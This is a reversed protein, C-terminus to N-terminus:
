THRRLQQMASLPAAQGGRPDISETNTLRSAEPSGFLTPPVVGRDAFTRAKRPVETRATARRPTRSPRTTAPPGTRATTRPQRPLRSPGTPTTAPPRAPSTFSLQPGRGSFSARSGRPVDATRPQAPTVDATGEDPGGDFRTGDIRNQLAHELHPSPVTPYGTSPNVFKSGGYNISEIPQASSTSSAEDADNSLIVVAVTLGAVAVLAIALLARLQNFQSRLVVAPQQRPIAQGM